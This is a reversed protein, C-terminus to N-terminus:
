KLPDRSGRNSCPDKSHEAQGRACHSNYRCTFMKTFLELIQLQEQPLQSNKYVSAEWEVEELPSLPLAPPLSLPPLSPPLSLSLSLSPSLHLSVIFSILFPLCSGM